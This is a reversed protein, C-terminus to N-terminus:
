DDQKKLLLRSLMLSISYAGIDFTDSIQLSDTYSNVDIIYNFNAVLMKGFLLNSKSGTM